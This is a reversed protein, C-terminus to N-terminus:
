NSAPVTGCFLTRRFGYFVPKQPWRRRLRERYREVFPQHLNEPLREFFPVLATGSMWEAIADADPLVHPYVKEMVTMNCCDCNYLLQAYTDLSLVPFRRNWGNMASRFPEEAATDHILLHSAHEQNSPVQVAIQGGPKVMSVLRPILTHHDDVWQIAAHSFVLDWQGSVSEISCQEFRLGPREHERARALMEASSDIGVVHSGPLMDALQRTLEGTGCGLDIASIDERLSILAVLDRYPVARQEKFQHYRTPDWPM